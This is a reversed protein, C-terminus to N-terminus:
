LTNNVPIDRVKMGAIYYRVYYMKQELTRGDLEFPYKIKGSSYGTSGKFLERLEQGSADTLTVRLETGSPSYAEVYGSFLKYPEVTTRITRIVEPQVMKFTEPSLSVYQQGTLSAVKQRLENSLQMDKVYISEVSEGDSISWVADQIGPGFYGKENLFKAMELLAGDALPGISFTDRIGPGAASQKVCYAYLAKRAKKGPELVILEDKVLMLPQVNDEYPYLLQGAELRITLTTKANNILDLHVSQEEHSGGVMGYMTADVLKKQAAEQLSYTNSASVIITTLIILGLAFSRVHLM